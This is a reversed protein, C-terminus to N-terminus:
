LNIKETFEMEGIILKVLYIGHKLDGVHIRTEGSNDLSATKKM